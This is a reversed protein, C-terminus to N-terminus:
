AVRYASFDFEGHAVRRLGNGNARISRCMPSLTGVLNPDQAAADVDNLSRDDGVSRLRHQPDIPGFDIAAPWAFDDSIEFSVHLDMEPGLAIGIRDRAM